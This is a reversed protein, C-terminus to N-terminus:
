VESFIFFEQTYNHKQQKLIRNFLHVPNIFTSYLEYAFFLNYFVVDM